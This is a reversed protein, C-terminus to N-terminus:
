LWLYSRPVPAGNFVAREMIANLHEYPGAHMCVWCAPLGSVV